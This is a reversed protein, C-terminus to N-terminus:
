GSSQDGNKGRNVIKKGAAQAGRGTATVTFQNQAQESVKEKITKQVSIPGAETLMFALARRKTMVDMARYEDIMVQEDPSFVSASPTGTVIYQVDAGLRAISALFLAGPEGENGEYLKLSSLGIEGRQAFDAQTMKLRKREERLREGIALFDGM